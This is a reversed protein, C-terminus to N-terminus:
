LRFEFRGSIITVDACPEKNRQLCAPMIQCFERPRRWLRRGSPPKAGVSVEPYWFEVFWSSLIM